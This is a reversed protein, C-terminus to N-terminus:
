HRCTQAAQLNRSVESSRCFYAAQRCRAGWGGWARRISSRELKRCWLHCPHVQCASHHGGTRSGTAEPSQQVTCHGGSVSAAAEDIGTAAPATGRIPLPVICLECSCQGHEMLCHVADVPLHCQCAPMPLKSTKMCTAAQWQVWVVPSVVILQMCAAAEQGPRGGPPSLFM